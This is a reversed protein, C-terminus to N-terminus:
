IRAPRRSRKMSLETLAANTATWIDIVQNYRENQTILGMNYNARIGDVKENAEDIMTYKENPIIIDGLSFSLGGEFAFKYGLTKIADLFAATKPVSTVKLIDGIIDRLSKKTLVENIYGAEEPVQENFIVRGLTTEIIQYVLEGAENFDKTRIKIQANLDVMKENYAIIAEEASYFTLGQGKVAVEKTSLKLKTM